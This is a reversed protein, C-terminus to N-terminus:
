VVIETTMVKLVDHLLDDDRLSPFGGSRLPVVKTFRERGDFYIDVTASAQDRSTVYRLNWQKEDVSITDIGRHTLLGKLRTDFEALFPRSLRAGSKDEDLGTAEQAPSRGALSVLRQRLEEALDTESMISVSGVQFNKNYSVNVRCEHVGKGCYFVEQYPKHAVDEITIDSGELRERIANRLADRFQSIPSKNPNELSGEPRNQQERFDLGSVKLRVEPPNVLFLMSSSRTMATYLWRFYDENRPDGGSPCIVFVNKWEGGQAKHGTVAYGFKVRMANFYPDNHLAVHFQHPDQGRLDPHRRLFDVYLARQEDASLNAQGDHLLTDLVKVRQVFKEEGEARLAIELERFVLTVESTEVEDSDGVRTRLRVSRREVMPEASVVDVFEGNAVFHGGVITNSTVLLRDGACVSDRGPFIQSHVAKNFEAAEANSRAIVIPLEDTQDRVIKLYAPLLDESDLRVVDESFNFELGRYVGQEVGDRLQAVNALIGSDSKQRVVETLRYEHAEIGFQAKLYERDLAPSTNMGVPPIQVPDGIFIIKRDNESANFGAFNMIDRLLYGSGSRFFDSESYDDSVLSAEDILYVANAPDRNPAVDAYFKFTALDAGDEGDFERLNGYDYILSHLTRADRGTKDAIIKAARGTPAALRYGRGQASLYEVLGRAMFTKGAGADGKLLFVRASPDSLFAELKDACAQQDENLDELFAERLTMRTRLHRVRPDVQSLAHSVEDQIRRIREQPFRFVNSPAEDQDNNEPVAADANEQQSHFGPSGQGYPRIIWDVDPRVLRAFWCGLSWADITLDEAQSTTVKRGHAGRNGFNRIAQLKALLRRNLFGSKELLNLREAHTQSTQFTLGYHDFLMEVMRETYSRLRVATIDPEDHAASEARSGLDYLDPWVSKLFGFNDVNESTM